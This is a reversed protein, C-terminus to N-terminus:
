VTTFQTQQTTQLTQAGLNGMSPLGSNLSASGGFYRGLASMLGDQNNEIRALDPFTNVVPNGCLNISELCYM